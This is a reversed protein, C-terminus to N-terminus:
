PRESGISKLRSWTNWVLRLPKTIRWSVSSKLRLVESNLYVNQETLENATTTLENLANAWPTVLQCIEVVERRVADLDIAVQLDPRDAAVKYVENALDALRGVCLSGQEAFHHRLTPELFHDIKAAVEDNNSVYLSLSLGDAILRSTERWNALLQEYTVTVRPLGRTWREADLCHQLWLLCSKDESFGDRHELSRVVEFPRRLCIVFHPKCGLENLIDLWMPLLRCTRPDKLIWLESQDFDRRVIDVLENRLLAVAPSQWWNDPLACEDHWSSGLTDLLRDHVVVIDKHEWFGKPNVGQDSPMLSPGPDAGLMSLMGTLASTGSRHMGLVIVCKNNM